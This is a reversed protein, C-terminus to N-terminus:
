RRASLGLAAPARAVLRRRRPHLAAPRPHPRAPGALVGDVDLAIRFGGWQEPREVDRGDFTREADAVQAELAERNEIPRSQRSAVAGIQAGRPRSGFYADSQAPDVRSSGARSGCRGSCSAGSCCPRPGRTPPSSAARARTTTPTSCRAPRTSARSCCSACRRAVPRTPRRWPWRTPSTSGPPSPTTSGDASCLSRTTARTPRTSGRVHTSPACPRSTLPSWTGVRLGHLASHRAHSIAYLYVVPELSDDRELALDGLGVLFPGREAIAADVDVVEDAPHRELLDPAQQDVAGVLRAEGGASGNGM